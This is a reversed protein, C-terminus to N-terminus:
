LLPRRSHWIFLGRRDRRLAIRERIRDDGRAGYEVTVWADSVVTELKLLRFVPPHSM